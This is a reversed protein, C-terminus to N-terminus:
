YTVHLVIMQITSLLRLVNTILTLVQILWDTATPFESLSHLEHLLLLIRWTRSICLYPGRAESVVVKLIIVSLPFIPCQGCKCWWALCCWFKSLSYRRFNLTFRQPFNLCLSYIIIFDLLYGSSSGVALLCRRICSFVFPLLVKKVWFINQPPQFGAGLFWHVFKCEQWWGEKSGGVLTREKGFGASFLCPGQTFTEWIFCM